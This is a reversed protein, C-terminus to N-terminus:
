KEPYLRSLVWVLKVAARRVDECDDQLGSCAQSYISQDLSQGREYLCLQLLFYQNDCIVNLLKLINYMIAVLHM